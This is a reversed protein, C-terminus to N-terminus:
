PTFVYGMQESTRRSRMWASSCRVSCSRGPNGAWPHFPVGCVVCKRKVALRRGHATRLPKRPAPATWDIDASMPQTGM